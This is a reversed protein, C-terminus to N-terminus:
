FIYKTLYVYLFDLVKRHGTGRKRMNIKSANEQNCTEQVIAGGPSSQWYTGNMINHLIIRFGQEWVCGMLLVMIQLKHFWDM